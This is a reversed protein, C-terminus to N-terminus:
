PLDAARALQLRFPIGAMSSSYFLAQAFCTETAGWIRGTRNFRIRVIPIAVIIGCLSGAALGFIWMAVTVWGYYVSLAIPPALLRILEPIANWVYLGQVLGPLLCAFGAYLMALGVMSGVVIAAIIEWTANPLLIISAFAALYAMIQPLNDIAECIRLIRYASYHRNHSEIKVMLAYCEDPYLDIVRGRPTKFGM